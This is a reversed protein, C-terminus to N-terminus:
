FFMVKKYDFFLKSLFISPLFGLMKKRLVVLLYLVSSLVGFLKGRFLEGHLEKHLDLM